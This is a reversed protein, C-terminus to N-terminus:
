LRETIVTFLEKPNTKKRQFKEIVTQFGGLFHKRLSRCSLFCAYGTIAHNIM